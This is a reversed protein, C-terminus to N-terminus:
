YTKQEWDRYKQQFFKQVMHVVEPTTSQTEPSHPLVSSCVETASGGAVSAWFSSMEILDYFRYIDKSYLMCCRAHIKVYTYVWTVVLSILVYFMELVRSPKKQIEERDFVELIYGNDRSSDHNTLKAQNQIENSYFCYVRNHTQSRKSLM